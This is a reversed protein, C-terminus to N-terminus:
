KTRLDTMLENSFALVEKDIESLSNYDVFLFGKSYGIWAVECPNM